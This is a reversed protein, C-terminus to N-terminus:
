FLFIPTLTVYGSINSQGRDGVRVGIERDRYATNFSQVEWSWCPRM